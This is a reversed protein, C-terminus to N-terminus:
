LSQVCRVSFGKERSDLQFFQAPTAAYDSAPNKQVLMLACEAASGSCNQKDESDAATDSVWSFGMGGFFGYSTGSMRGGYLRPFDSSDMAAAVEARTPLRWGAPCASRAVSYSYLAGYSKLDVSSGDTGTSDYFSIDSAGSPAYRLNESMWRISGIVVFGYANGDRSDTVTTGSIVSTASSSLAVSSSSVAASSSAVANSSSSKVVVSASSAASCGETWCFVGSSYYPDLLASSSSAAQASSKVSAEGKSSSSAPTAVSSSSAADASSKEVSSSTQEGPETVGSSASSPSVPSSDDADCSTLFALGIVLLGFRFTKKM